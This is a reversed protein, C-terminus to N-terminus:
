LGASQVCQAASENFHAVLVKAGEAIFTHVIGEGFGFGGGTVVAVKNNM